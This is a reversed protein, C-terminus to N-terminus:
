HKFKIKRLTRVQPEVTKIRRVTWFSGECERWRLCKRHCMAPYEGISDADHGHQDAQQFLQRSQRCCQGQRWCSGCSLLFFYNITLFPSAFIHWKHVVKKTALGIWGLLALKLRDRTLLYRFILRLCSERQIAKFKGLKSRDQSYFKSLFDQEM